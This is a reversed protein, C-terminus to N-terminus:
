DACPSILRAPPVPRAASARGTSYVALGHGLRNLKVLPTHGIAELINARAGKLM